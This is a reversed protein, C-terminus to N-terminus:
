EVVNKVASRQPRLTSKKKNERFSKERRDKRERRHITVVNKLEVKVYRLMAAFLNSLVLIVRWNAPIRREAFVSYVSLERLFFIIKKKHRQNKRPSKTNSLRKAFFHLILKTISYLGQNKLFNKNYISSNSKM